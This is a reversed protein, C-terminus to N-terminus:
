VKRRINKRRVLLTRAIKETVEGEYMGSVEGIIDWDEFLVSFLIGPRLKLVANEDFAKGLNVCWNGERRRMLRIACLEFVDDNEEVEGSIIVGFFLFFLALALVLLSSLIIVTYGAPTSFFGREYDQEYLEGEIALDSESYELEEEETLMGESDGSGSSDASVRMDDDDDVIYLVGNKMVTSGGSTYSSSSKEGKSTSGGKQSSGGGRSSSGGGKSSTGGGKSSTGGGKSSSSGGPPIDIKIDGEYKEEKKESSSSTSSSGPPLVRSSSSGGGGPAPTIKASSSTSPHYESSGGPPLTPYPTPTATVVPDPYTTPDATPAQTPVATPPAKVNLTAAGSYSPASNFGRLVCCYVNGNMDATASSILLTDTETGSYVSGDHIPEWDNGAKICWQYPMYVLVTNGDKVVQKLFKDSGSWTQSTVTSLHSPLYTANVKFQAGSGPNVTVSEPSSHFTILRRGTYLNEVSLKYGTRKGCYSCVPGPHQTIEICAYGKEYGAAGVGSLSIGESCYAGPGSDLKKEVWVRASYLSHEAAYQECYPCGGFEMVPEDFWLTDVDKLSIQIKETIVGSSTKTLFDYNVGYIYTDYTNNDSPSRKGPGYSYSTDFKYAYADVPKLMLCIMAAIVCKMLKRKNMM